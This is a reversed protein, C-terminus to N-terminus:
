HDILMIHKKNRKKLRNNSIYAEIIEIHLPSWRELSSISFDVESVKRYVGNTPIALFRNPVAVATKFMEHMHM